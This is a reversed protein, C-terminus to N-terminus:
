ARRAFVTALAIAAVTAAAGLVTWGLGGGAPAASLAVVLTAIAFGGLTIGAVGIARSMWVSREASIANREAISWAALEGGLLLAAAAIPSGQDVARGHVLLALTYALGQIALAPAIAAEQCRVLAYALVLLGLGGIGGTAPAATADRTVVYAFM